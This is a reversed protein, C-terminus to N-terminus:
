YFQQKIFIAEKMSEYLRKLSAKSDRLYHIANTEYEMDFHAGQIVNKLKKFEKQQDYLIPVNTVFM